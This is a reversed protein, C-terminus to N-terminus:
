LRHVKVTLEKMQAKHLAEILLRKKEYREGSAKRDFDILEVQQKQELEKIGSDSVGSKPKLM